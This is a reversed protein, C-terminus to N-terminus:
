LGEGPSDTKSPSEPLGGITTSGNSALSESGSNYGLMLELGMYVNEFVYYDMGGVVNVGIIADDDGTSTFDLLGGFYPSMRDTGGLHYEYGLGISIVEADTDMMYQVRGAMNEKFFYRLRISPADFSLGEGSTYNMGGELSFPNSDTPKQAMVSGSIIIGCFLIALKKM